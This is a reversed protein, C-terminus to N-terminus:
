ITLHKEKTMRPVSLYTNIPQSLWQQEMRFAVDHQNRKMGGASICHRPVM